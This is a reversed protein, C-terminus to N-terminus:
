MTRGARPGTTALANGTITRGPHASAKVSNAPNRSPWHWCPDCRHTDGMQTSDFIERVTLDWTKTKVKAGDKPTWLVEVDSPQETFVCPVTQGQKMQILAFNNSWEMFAVAEPSGDVPLPAPMGRGPISPGTAQAMVAVGNIALLRCGKLGAYKPDEIETVFNNSESLVIGVFIRRWINRFDFELGPFCNSIASTPHSVPPNGRGRYALQDRVASLNRAAIAGSAQFPVAATVKRVMDIQRRTLTLYRADAGRMLAPMKRRGADSLDGIEEPHRLVDAFWPASGSRLATLVAQHLALVSRNDVISNAMVPAFLRHTDNSDQAPMMSATPGRGGVNNGNMVTTNMLRVTEAARRVIDEAEAPAIDPPKVDLGLLAQLLEDNITRVPLGDPAFAPPGAGIRAFASLTAGGPLTLSVTVIGDCEDDLYGWSVQNNNEDSYGAYIQGPNTTTPDGTDICGLWKQQPNAGDYIVRGAVIPDPKSIKDGFEDPEIRHDSAGYVLGKAPTFRLRIEPFRADPRIYRVNGLPLVKGKIFHPATADLRTSTM